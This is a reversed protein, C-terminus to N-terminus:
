VAKREAAQVKASTQKKPSKSGGGNKVWALWKDFFAKVEGHIGCNRLGHVQQLDYGRMEVTYYPKDPANAKRIFLITTKCTLHREVYGGVCHHLANGEAVIEPGDKAVRVIFKGDSYDYFRHREKDKKKFSAAKKEWEARVRKDKMLRRAEVAEDHAAIIDRPFAVNHVTLDRGVDRAAELYDRYFFFQDRCHSRMYRLVYLPKEAPLLALVDFYDRVHRIGNARYEEVLESLPIRGKFECCDRLFDLRDNLCETTRYEEKTMRWFALPNKARWNVFRVNRVGLYVLDRAVQGGHTRLAIELAPYKTYYCLYAMLKTSGYESCGNYGWPRGRIPALNNFDWVHSYKLFTDDLKEANIFKYQPTCWMFSQWPDCPAKRPEWPCIESAYTYHGKYFALTQWRYVDWIPFTRREMEFGGQWLKYHAKEVFCLRMARDAAVGAYVTYARFYVTKGGDSPLIFIVNEYSDLTSFDRFRGTAAFRVKGRCSPCKGHGGHKALWLDELVDGSGLHERYATMEKGCRSCFGTVRGRERKYFVFHRWWSKRVLELERCPVDPMDEFAASFGERNECEIRILGTM